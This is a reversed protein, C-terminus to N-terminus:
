QITSVGNKKVVQLENDALHKADYFHDIMLIVDREQKLTELLEIVRERCEAPMGDFVEDLLLLSMSTGKRNSVIDSMAFSCALNARAKEGDSLSEFTKDKGNKIIKTNLKLKDSNKGSEYLFKIAIDEGFLPDMYKDIRQNLEDITQEFVYYKINKYSAKLISLAEIHKKIEDEQNLFKNLELNLKTAEDGKDAALKIFPNKKEKLKAAEGAIERIASKAEVIQTEKQEAAQEDVRRRTDIEKAEDKIAQIEKEYQRLHREKEKEKANIQNVIEMQKSQLASREKAIEKLRNELDECKGLAENLKDWKAQAPDRKAIFSKKAENLQLAQKRLLEGDIDQLCHECQGSGVSKIHEIKKDIQEIDFNFGNVEHAIDKISQVLKPVVKLKKELEGEEKDLTELESYFNKEKLEAIKGDYAEVDVKAIDDVSRVDYKRSRLELAESKLRDMLDKKAQAKDKLASIQSKIDDDFSDRQKELEVAEKNADFARQDINSKHIELADLDTQYKKEKNRAIEYAADFDSLDLVRTLIDIKETNGAAIFRSASSRSFYISNVFTNFDIKLLDELIQQTERINSGRKADSGDIFYYLDDPKRSRVITLEQGTSTRLSLKGMCGKKAGDYIFETIKINRPSKGFLIFSFADFLGTKGAGSASKDDDNWGGVQTFGLGDLNLDVNIYSM